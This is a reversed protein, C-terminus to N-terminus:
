HASWSRQHLSKRTRCLNNEYPALARIYQPEPFPFSWREPERIKFSETIGIFHLLSYQLALVSVIPDVRCLRLRKLRFSASTTRIFTLSASVGHKTHKEHALSVTRFPRHLYADSSSDIRNHVYLVHFAGMAGIPRSIRPFINLTSSIRVYEQYRHSGHAELTTCIPKQIYADSSSDVRNQTYSV